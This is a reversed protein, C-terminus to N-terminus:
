SYNQLLFPRSEYKTEFLQLMFSSFAFCRWNTVITNASILNWQLLCFVWFYFNHNCILVFSDLIYSQYVIRNGCNSYFYDWLTLFLVQFLHYYIYYEVWNSNPQLTQLREFYWTAMLPIMWPLNYISKIMKNSVPRFFYIQHQLCPIHLVISLLIRKM